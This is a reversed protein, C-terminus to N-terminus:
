QVVFQQTISGAHKFQLTAEFVMGKTFPQTLTFLMFHMAGPTFATTKGAPIAVSELRRMRMIDNTTETTHLEIHKAVPSSVALLTDDTTGHNHIEIFAAGVTTQGYSPNARANALTITANQAHASFAFLGCVLLLLRCLSRM